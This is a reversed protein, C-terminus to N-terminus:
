NKKKILLTCFAVDYSKLIKKFINGEPLLKNKNITRQFFFIKM